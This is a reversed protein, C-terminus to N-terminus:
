LAVRRGHLNQGADGHGESSIKCIDSILLAAVTQNGAVTQNIWHSYHQVQIHRFSRCSNLCSIPPM